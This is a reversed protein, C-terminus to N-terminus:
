LRTDILERKHDEHEVLVTCLEIWDWSNMYDYRGIRIKEAKHLHGCIIGQTKNKQCAKVLKRQFSSRWWVMLNKVWRKLSTILSRHKLWLKQRITNHQRNLRYMFTGGCFTLKSWPTFKGELKDFQHGHCIYYKKKGSEYIMDPLIEIEKALRPTTTNISIDHNGIIYKIEAWKDKVVEIVDKIWNTHRRKWWGFLRIHRGDIIDGNLILQDFTQNKLWQL